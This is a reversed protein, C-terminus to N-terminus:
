GQKNPTVTGVPKGSWSARVFERVFATYSAVYPAGQAELDERLTAHLQPLKYWPVGPYLHHELHYNENCVFFTTVGNTLISRTGQIVDTNHELLTHQSMGRINFMWNVFLMPLLWGHLLYSMPISSSLIGVVLAVLLFMEVVIWLRDRKNGQLFGLVPIAVVYAPYGLVLRGWHMGFVLWSPKAYNDYHDPDGHAGTHKHHRLHLVRYATYSQLLPLGCAASVAHNLWSKHFLVGHVGEHAFLGFGHLSAAALLYCPICVLVSWWAGGLAHYLAIAGAAAGLYLGVFLLLRTVHQHELTHLQRSLEPSLRPRQSPASM